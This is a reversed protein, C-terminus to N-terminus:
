DLVDTGGETGDARRGGCVFALLLLRDLKKEEKRRAHHDGGQDQAADVRPVQPVLVPLVPLVQRRQLLPDLVGVLVHAGLVEGPAVAVLGQQIAVGGGRTNHSLSLSLCLASPAKKHAGACAHVRARLVTPIVLDVVM